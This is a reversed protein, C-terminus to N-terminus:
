ARRGLESYLAGAIAPSTVQWSPPEARARASGEDGQSIARHDESVQQPGPWNV